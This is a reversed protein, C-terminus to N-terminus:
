LSLADHKAVKLDRLLRELANQYVHRNKWQSFNGIHRTRRLKAAWSQDTDMVTADLLIPFLIAKERKREEEIATEVEDEVWDSQVSYQSLIVLLKDHKQISQDITSRIKAGIKMNEPAYWCCVGKSQLDAYRRQAFPEDEHSYSIFCSYYYQAEGTLSPLHAIFSDSIGVGRLFSNFIEGKSRQFTHMDIYSPAFHWVTDLGNVSGLDVNRFNTYGVTAHSLNAGKLNATSLDAGSLDAGILNAEGLDAGILNTDILSAQSLNAKCLNAWSLVSNHLDSRILKTKRFNSKSFDVRSLNEESLDVGGIDKGRFDIQEDKKRVTKILQLTQQRTLKIM